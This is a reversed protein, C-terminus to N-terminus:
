AMAATHPESGAVDFDAGYVVAKFFEYHAPKEFELRVRTPGLFDKKTGVVQCAIRGLHALGELCLYLGASKPPRQDMVLRAGHLSFDEIIALCRRTIAAEDWEIRCHDHIAPYRPAARREDARAFKTWHNTQLHHIKSQKDM